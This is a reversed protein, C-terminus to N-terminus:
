VFSRNSSSSVSDFLLSVVISVVIRWPCVGSMLSRLGSLALVVALVHFLCESASQPVTASFLSRFPSITGFFLFTLSTSLVFHYLPIFLSVFMHLCLKSMQKFIHTIRISQKAKKHGHMKLTLSDQRMIAGQRTILCAVFLYLNRTDSIPIM